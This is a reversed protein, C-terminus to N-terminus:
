NNASVMELLKKHSIPDGILGVCYPILLSHMYCLTRQIYAM